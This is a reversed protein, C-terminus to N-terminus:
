RGVDAKRERMVILFTKPMHNSIANPLAQQFRATTSLKVCLFQRLNGHHKEHFSFSTRVVMVFLAIAAFLMPLNLHM